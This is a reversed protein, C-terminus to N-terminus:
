DIPRHMVPHTCNKRFRIFAAYGLIGGITNLIVDDIDVMRIGVGAIDEVLQIGEIGCSILISMFLASPFKWGLKWGNLNCLPILPVFLCINGAFNIVTEKIYPDKLFRLPDISVFSAVEFGVYPPYNIPFLTVGIVGAVYLCFIFRLLERKKDFSSRKRIYWIIKYILYLVIVATIFNAGSVSV